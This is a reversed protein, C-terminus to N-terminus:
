TDPALPSYAKASHPFPMFVTIRLLWCAVFFRYKSSFEFASGEDRYFDDLSLIVLRVTM